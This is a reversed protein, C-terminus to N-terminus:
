YCYRNDAAAALVGQVPDGWIGRPDPALNLNLGWQDLAITEEYGEVTATRLVSPVQPPPDSIRVRHRLDLALLDATGPLTDPFWAGAYDGAVVALDDWWVQAGIVSPLYIHFRPNATGNGVYTARVQQVGDVTGSWLSVESGGSTFRVSVTTPAISRLTLLVTYLQGSANPAGAIRVTTDPDPSFCVARGSRVGHGAWSQAAFAKVGAGVAWPVGPSQLGANGSLRSPSSGPTGVSYATLDPDPSFGSDFYAPAAKQTVCCATQDYAVGAPFTGSTANLFMGFVAHTAGAPPTFSPVSVATWVGATLPVVLPSQSAGVWNGAGDHYRLRVTVDGSLGLRVWTFLKMPVGPTMPYNLWDGSTLPSGLQVNGGWNVGQNPDTTNSPCTSRAATTLGSGPIVIGTLYSPAWGYRIQFESTSGGSVQRPNLCHNRWIEIISGVGEFGSNASALNLQSTEWPWTLLDLEVGSLRASSMVDGSHALWRARCSREPEPLLDPVERWVKPWGSREAVLVGDTTGGTVYLSPDSGWSTGSDAEVEFATVPGVYRHDLWTPLGTAREATWIAGAADAMQEGAAFPDGADPRRMPRDYGLVSVPDTLGAAWMATQLWTSVPAVGPTVRDALARYEAESMAGAKCGIPGLTGSWAGGYQSAGFFVEGPRDPGLPRSVTGSGLPTRLTASSATVVLAILTPKGLETTGAPATWTAEGGAVRTLRIAGAPRQTLYLDDTRALTVGGWEPPVEESPAVIMLLTHPLAPPCAGVLQAAVTAIGTEAQTPKFERARPVDLGEPPSVGATTVSDRDDTGWFDVALPSVGAVASRAQDAGALDDMPWLARDCAEAMALASWMGMPSASLVAMADVASVAVRSQTDIGFPWSARMSQVYGVFRVSGSVTVRVRVWRRWSPALPSGPNDETFRGDGNDLVFDCTGPKVSDAENSRGRSIRVRQGAAVLLWSSLDVWAVGNYYELTISPATM